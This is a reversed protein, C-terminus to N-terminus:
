LKGHKKFLNDYSKEDFGDLRDGEVYIVPVGRQGQEKNIRAAKSDKEVDM